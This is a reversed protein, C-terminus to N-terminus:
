RRRRWWVGVGLLGVVGPMALFSFWFLRNLQPGTLNLRISEIAKPGIGILQEQEILWYLIGLVLDRNGVNSLQSNVIFDSDGIVVLRTPREPGGAEAAAAISVPGQIDQGEDFQFTEVETHTEGWGAPSTMALPTVTVGEPAPHAPRVSRALPFLTVLMRMKDVIPHETYDTVLLNAASVVPLRRAPDVVIDGGLAIGWRDLLGELGTEESPDLLALLRGGAQLYAQLLDLEHDLFRHTPGAIVVLKVESPIAQREALTVAETAIGQQKLTGNLTALGEAPDQADLAKEGHGTTFWVLPSAAQTVNIIASTLADEGKFAAVRPEGGFSTASYDYDALDADTLRKHRNGSQVVVVNSEEIGFQKVLQETRARDRYPDVLEVKLKNGAAFEYEKVLNTILPYLPDPPDDPTRRPQYFVVVEVPGQLGKLLQHTQASLASLKVRSLNVRAYRRSAIYNVLIFLAGLLALTAALNTSSLLRRRLRAM